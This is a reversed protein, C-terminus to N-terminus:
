QVSANLTILLTEEWHVPASTTVLLMTKWQVSANSTFVLIAQWQRVARTAMFPEFAAPMISPVRLGPIANWPMCSLLLVAAWYDCM